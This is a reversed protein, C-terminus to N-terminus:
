KSYTVTIKTGDREVVELKLNRKNALKELVKLPIEREDSTVRLIGRGEEVRSLLQTLRIVPNETCGPKKETLDIFYVDSM